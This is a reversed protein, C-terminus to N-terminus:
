DLYKSCVSQSDGPLAIQVRPKSKKRHGPLSLVDVGDGERTLQAKPSRLDRVQLVKPGSSSDHETYPACSMDGLGCNIWGGERRINVKGLNPTLWRCAERRRWWDGSPNTPM